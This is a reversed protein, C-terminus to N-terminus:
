RQWAEPLFGGRSLWKDLNEFHGVLEDALELHGAPDTTEQRYERVVTRLQELTKNPDM